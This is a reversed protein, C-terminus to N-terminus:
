NDIDAMRPFEKKNKFLYYKRLANSLPQRIEDLSQLSRLASLMNEDGDVASDASKGLLKEVKNLRTVRANIAKEGKGESELFDRFENELM